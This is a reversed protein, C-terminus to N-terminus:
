NSSEVKAPPTVPPTVWTPETTSGGTPDSSETPRGSPSWSGNGSARLAPTCAQTLAFVATLNVELARRWVETSQEEFPTTWNLLPEASVLAAVHILIDIGGASDLVREAVARTASEDALDVALALTRTSRKAEIGRAVSDCRDQDLDVVAVTAGQEALADAVASGIHGAGGTVIAVRGDLRSLSAIDRRGKQTDTM